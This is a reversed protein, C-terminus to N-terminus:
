EKGSFMLSVLKTIHCKPRRVTVCGVNIEQAATRMWICDWRNNICRININKKVKAKFYIRM